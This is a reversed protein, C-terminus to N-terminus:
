KRFNFSFKEKEKSSQLERIDSNKRFSEWGLKYLILSIILLIGSIRYCYLSSIVNFIVEVAIGVIVITFFIALFSEKNLSAAFIAIFYVVLLFTFTTIFISFYQSLALERYVKGFLEVLYQRESINCFVKTIIIYIIGLLSVLFSKIVVLLATSQFFLKRSSTFNSYKLFIRIFEFLCDFVAIYYVSRMYDMYEITLDTNKFKILIIILALVIPTLVNAIIWKKQIYLVGKLRNM